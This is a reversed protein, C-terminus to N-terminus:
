PIWQTFLVAVEKRRLARDGGALHKETNRRRSTRRMHLFRKQHKSSAWGRFDFTYHELKVKDGSRKQV